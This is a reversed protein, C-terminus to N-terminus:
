MNMKVEIVASHQLFDVVSKHRVSLIKYLLQDASNKSFRM